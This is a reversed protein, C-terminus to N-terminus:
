ITVQLVHGTIVSHCLESTVQIEVTQTYVTGGAIARCTYQVGHLDDSVPDIIYDLMTQNADSQSVTSENRRWEISAPLITMCSLNASQGVTLPQEAGSVTIAAPAFM